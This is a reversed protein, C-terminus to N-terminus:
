PTCAGALRQPYECLPLGTAEPRESGDSARGYSGEHLGDNGAVVVYFVSGPAPTGPDITAEGSVGLGCAQDTWDSPGPIPGSSSGWYAVHDTACAAPGFFLRVASGSGRELVLPSGLPPGAEGPASGKLTISTENSDASEFRSRFDDAVDRAVYRYTTGPVATPDLWELQSVPLEDAVLDYGSGPTTSRYVRWSDVGQCRSPPDRRVLVRTSGTASLGSPAPPTLLADYTIFGSSLDEAVRSGAVWEGYSADCHLYYEFWGTVSRLYRQHRTANWSGCIIACGLVDNSKEPDCHNAGVLKVGRKQPNAAGYLALASGNANCSSPESYTVAVPMRADPLSAVGLGANDVPDMPASAGVRADRSAAVLAQLGGASHGSTGVREVAIRGLFISGPDTNRALIWDITDIMEDANGSHDCGGLISCVYNSVLVVFGRSALHEGFSTYRDKNRSFGHGFVVVPCRGAAPDVSVGGDASPFYVDTNRVAGGEVPVNVNDVGVGLPGRAGPDTAAECLTVSAALVLASLVGPHALTLRDAVLHRVSSGRMPILM